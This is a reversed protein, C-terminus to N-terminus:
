YLKIYSAITVSESSSSHCTRPRSAMETCSCSQSAHELMRDHSLKFRDTWQVAQWGAGPTQALRVDQIGYAAIYPSPNIKPCQRSTIVCLTVKNLM